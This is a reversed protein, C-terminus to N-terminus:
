CCDTKGPVAEVSIRQASHALQILAYLQAERLDLERREFLLMFIEMVAERYSEVFERKDDTNIKLVIQEKLDETEKM